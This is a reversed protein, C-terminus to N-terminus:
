TRAGEGGPADHMAFARDRIKPVSRAAEFRAYVFACLLALVPEIHEDGVLSYNEGLAQLFIWALGFTLAFALGFRERDRSFLRKGSFNLVAAVFGIACIAAAIGGQSWMYILLDHPPFNPPLGADAAYQTFGIQWGGFGQGLLPSQPFAESAYTWIITRLRLTAEAQNGFSVGSSGVSVVNYDQVVLFLLPGLALVIFAVWAGNGRAKIATAITMALALGACFLIAAKSGTVFAGALFIASGFFWRKCRYAWAFGFSTAALFGAFAGAVNANEFLGGSKTPDLINDAGEPTFLTLLSDPNIFLGALYSRFFTIKLFPHLRFLVILVVQLLAIALTWALLGQMFRPDSRAEALAAAFISLFMVLYVITRTGLQFDVSWILSTLYAFIIGVLLLTPQWTLIFRVSRVLDPLLALAALMCIPPVFSQADPDYFQFGSLSVSIFLLIRRPTLRPLHLRLPRM